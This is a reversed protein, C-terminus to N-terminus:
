KIKLDQIDRKFTEFSINNINNGLKNFKHYAKYESSDKDLGEYYEKNKM